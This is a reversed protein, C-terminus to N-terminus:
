KQQEKDTENFAPKASKPQFKPSPPEETSGQVEKISSLDEPNLETPRKSM